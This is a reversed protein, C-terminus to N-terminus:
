QLTTYFAKYASDLDFLLQRVEEESLEDNVKMQNLRILWQVIKARGEFESANSVRNVATMLESLLPHLQDKAKYGLKLGDMATIFCGTAEAVARGSVGASVPTETGGNSPLPIANTQNEVTAPVGIELRQRAHPHSMHYKSMFSDLDGYEAAVDANKLITNYQALMRLCIPTYEQSDVSDKLFAKELKDLAVIISYLEALSEWFERQKTTEYLKIEENLTIGTPLRTSTHSVPAYPQM